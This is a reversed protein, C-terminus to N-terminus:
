LNKQAVLRAILGGSVILFILWSPVTFFSLVAELGTLIAALLMLRVSWAKKAIDKWNAGLHIM